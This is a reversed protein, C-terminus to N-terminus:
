EDGKNEWKNLPCKGEGYFLDFVKTGCYGCVLEGGWLDSKVEEPDGPRMFCLECKVLCRGSTPKKIDEGPFAMAVFFLEGLKQIDAQGFESLKREWLGNATLFQSILKFNM